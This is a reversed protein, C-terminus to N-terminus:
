GERGEMAPKLRAVGAKAAELNPHIELASEYAELAAKEAGMSEYIMGLGTLAAFHRPELALTKEIDRVADPPNESKFELVARRSYIEAFDPKVSAAKDLLAHARDLEGAAEAAQARELLIDVTPSGSNNWVGWIRQEIPAAEAANPAAALEVFLKDLAPNPPPATARPGCAALALMLAALLFSRM